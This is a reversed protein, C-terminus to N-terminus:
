PNAPAPQRILKDAIREMIYSASDIEMVPLGEMSAFRYAMGLCRDANVLTVSLSAAASDLARIDTCAARVHAAYANGAPSQIGQPAEHFAPADVAGFSRYGKGAALAQEINAALSDAWFKLSDKCPAEDGGQELWASCAQDPFEPAATQVSNATAPGAALLFAGAIASTIKM